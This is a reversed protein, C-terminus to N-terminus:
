GAKASQREKRDWLSLVRIAQHIWLLVTASTLLDLFIHHTLLLCLCSFFPSQAAGKSQPLALFESDRAYDLFVHQFQARPIDTSCPVGLLLFCSVASENVPRLPHLASSCVTIAATSPFLAAGLITDGLLWAPLGVQTLGAEPCLRWKETLVVPLIKSAPAPNEKTHQTGKSRLPASFSLWCGARLWSRAAALPPAPGALLTDQYPLRSNWGPHSLHFDQVFGYSVSKCSLVNM